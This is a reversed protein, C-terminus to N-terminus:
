AHNLGMPSRDYMMWFWILPKREAYREADVDGYHEPELTINRPDFNHVLVATTLDTSKEPESYACGLYLEHLVDRVVESRHTIDKNAFQGDLWTLWKDFAAAANPLPELRRYDLRPM